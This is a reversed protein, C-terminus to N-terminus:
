LGGSLKFQIGECFILHSGSEQSIVLACPKDSKFDTPILDFRCEEINLYGDYIDGETPLSKYKCRLLSVSGTLYETKDFEFGFKDTVNIIVLRKFEIELSEKQSVVKKIQSDHLEIRKKM